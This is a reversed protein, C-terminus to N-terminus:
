CRFLLSRYDVVPLYDATRTRRRLINLPLSRSCRLFPLRLVDPLCHILVPYSSYVPLVFRLTCVCAYLHVCYDLHTNHQLNCTTCRTHLVFPGCGTYVLVYDLRYRIRPLRYPLCSRVRPVPTM